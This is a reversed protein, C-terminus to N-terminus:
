PSAFPAEPVEAPRLGPVRDLATRVARLLGEPRFPKALFGVPRGARDRSPLEAPAYGSMFVFRAGPDQSMLRRALDVGDMEPMVVDSLVLRFPDAPTADYLRLADQASTVSQVRYGARELTARILRLVSPDDDVVLVRDGKGAESWFSPGPRAVPLVLRARTGGGADAELSLGGRHGHLVGYAVALGFGRHRPKTSFFPELFLRRRAEPALGPGDDCVSVEVHDGPQLSGYFDLCDAAELRVAAARVRVRGRPGAAERANTLLAGLAERLLGAEIALPPLDPPLDAQVGTASQGEQADLLPALHCARPEGPRRRAFLRLQHTFLAGSQAGRQVESLYGHLLSTSPIALGLSLESFGLIGTLVNGFDHALRGAVAATVDLSRQRAAVEVQAAWRPGSAALRRDLAQGVLALAAAEAASWDPREPGEVWLLWGPQGFATLLLSGGDPLPATVAAAEQRARTALTPDIEWLRPCPGPGHRLLPAGDARAALCAAPAAFASALERMLVDLGGDDAGPGTLVRGAFELAAGAQPASASAPEPGHM